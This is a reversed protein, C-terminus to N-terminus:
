NVEFNIEIQLMTGVSKNGYLAPRFVYQRVADAAREELGYGVPMALWTGDVKGKDSVVVVLRVTGHVGAHSAEDTIHPEASSILWPLTVKSSEVDSWQGNILIPTPRKPVPVRSVDFPLVNAYPKPLNTEAANSNPFFLKEQIQPIVLDPPANQLEVELTMPVRGALFVKNQKIDRVLTAREGELILKDHEYKISRPIFTSLAHLRSPKDVLTGNAWEYRATRDASYNRLWLQKDKLADQLVRVDDTQAYSFKALLLLFPLLKVFRPM